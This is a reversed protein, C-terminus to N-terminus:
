FRTLTSALYADIDSPDFPRGDFLDLADSATVGADTAPRDTPWATEAIAARYIDPRFIARITAEDGSRRAVQRWRVMQSYIWLAHDVSPVNAGDRHLILFDAVIRGAHGTGDAIQGSLARAVLAAPMDLYEPASLIAALEGHNAREDAWAAACDLARVLAALIGANQLAWAQPVGLVKEMGRCWIEAKSAIIRGLGADVAVSNWPEGVCFGDIHGDRLSDVMLPPPIVVLRVDADPDIGSAAMWHRLEYNHCSFPYVIGFTLSASGAANRAVIVRRLAEGVAAVGDKGNFGGVQAMADYLTTSVTIANGNRNLCFPVLMPMPVQNIGLTAAIPMGALM